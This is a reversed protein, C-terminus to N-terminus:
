LDLSGRGVEVVKVESQMCVYKPALNKETEGTLGLDWVRGSGRVVKSAAQYILVPLPPCLGLRASPLM